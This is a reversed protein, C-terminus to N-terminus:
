KWVLGKTKTCTAKGSTVQHTLLNFGTMISAVSSAKIKYTVGKIAVRYNSAKLSAMADMPSVGKKLYSLAVMQHTADGGIATVVTNTAM